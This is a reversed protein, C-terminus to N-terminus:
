VGILLLLEVRSNNLTFSFHSTGQMLLTLLKTWNMMSTTHPVVLFTQQRLSTDYIMKNNTNSRSVEIKANEM